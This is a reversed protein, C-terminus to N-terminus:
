GKLLEKAKAHSDNISKNNMIVSYLQEAKAHNETKKYILLLALNVETSFASPSAPRSALPELLERAAAYNGQRMYLSAHVYDVMDLNYPAFLIVDKRWNPTKVYSEIWGIGESAREDPLKRAARVLYEIFVYNRPYQKRLSRSIEVGQDLKNEFEILAFALFVKAPGEAYTGYNVAKTVYELGKESNGSFGVIWALIKVMGTLKSCYYEFMGLGLYADYNQPDLELSKELSAVATKGLSYSDLWESDQLHVMGEAGLVMGRVYHVMADQVPYEDCVKIAEAAADIFKKKYIAYNGDAPYDWYSRLMYMYISTLIFRPFPERPYLDILDHTHLIAKEYETNLTEGSIRAVLEHASGDQRFSNASAEQGLAFVLLIALLAKKL